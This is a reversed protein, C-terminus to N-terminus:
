TAAPGAPFVGSMTVFGPLRRFRDMWRRIAPYDQRSVGGEECLAIAPFLALDALSPHPGPLMWDAGEREGFWLDRDITRLIRHAGTALAALDAPASTTIAWRAALATEALGEARAFHLDIGAAAEAPAWAAGEPALTVLHALIDPLRTLVRAGDTLVPLTAAPNLALFAASHLEDGPFVDIPVIDHPLRLFGLLLRVAYCEASLEFDYLTLM